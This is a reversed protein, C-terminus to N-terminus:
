GVDRRLTRMLDLLSRRLAANDIASYSEILLVREDFPVGDCPSLEAFNEILKEPAIALAAAVRILTAVSVRNFGREYKQIQQFTVGVRRGLEQQSMGRLLRLERIRAGLIGDIAAPDGNLSTNDVIVPRALNAIDIGM